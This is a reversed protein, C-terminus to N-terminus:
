LQRLAHEDDHIKHYRFTSFPSLFDSYFHDQALVPAPPILALALQRVHRM